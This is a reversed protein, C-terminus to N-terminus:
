SGGGGVIEESGPVIEICSLLLWEHQEGPDQIGVLDFTRGRWAVRMEPTVGALYRIRMVHSVTLLQQQAHWSESSSSPRVDAWRTAVDVWEPVHGRQGDDHLRPRQLTIRSTLPAFVM